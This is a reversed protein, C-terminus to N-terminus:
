PDVTTADAPGVRISVLQDPDIHRRFAAIIDERRVKAVRARYSELYDLPLGYFGIAGLQGVISRNSATQLPFSGLIHRRAEEVQEASPGDRLFEELTERAIALAEGAQDARTQLGLVFPGPVRMASFYSYVSYALGREERIRQHLTSVLGGGGLIENGVNLAVLDESTRSVGIAGLRLHAQASPFEVRVALDGEPAVPEPPRPSPDGAPLMQAIEGAIRTAQDRNIAGTLAILLNGRNYYRRYYDQVEERTIQQLSQETGDPPSGYPHNGYLAKYLQESTIRGPDQKKHLLSALMRKRERELADDPFSVDALIERLTALAPDLLEPKVLSRLEMTAMDRYSGTGFSAGVSEFRRAIESAPSRSTGEPILASVLAALGPRTGDRAAGADFVLRIDLMPLEPAAVFLTRAGVADDLVQIQLPRRQPAQESGAYLRFESATVAQAPAETSVPDERHGGRGLFLIVLPLVIVLAWLFRRSFIPKYNQM